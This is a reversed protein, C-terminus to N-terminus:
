KLIDDIRREREKDISICAWCKEMLEDMIELGYLQMTDLSNLTKVLVCKSVPSSKDVSLILSSKARWLSYEMKSNKAIEEITENNLIGRNKILFGLSTQYGFVNHLYHWEDKRKLYKNEHFESISNEFYEIHQKSIYGLSLRDTPVIIIEDIPPDQDRYGLKDTIKIKSSYGDRDLEIGICGDYKTLDEGFENIVGKLHLCWAKKPYEMNM